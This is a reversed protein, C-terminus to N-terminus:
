EGEQQLQNISWSDPSQLEAFPVTQSSVRVCRGNCFM